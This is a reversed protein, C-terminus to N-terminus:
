CALGIVGAQRGARSGEQRHSWLRPDCRSCVSIREVTKVGCRRLQATAAAGPDVHPRHGSQDAFDEVPSWRALAAVVEDGVEYCGMCIAPGVVARLPATTPLASVTEGIVGAALGRWGAHIVAVVGQGAVVIPVCDATRIALLMGPVDTWLADAEGVLGGTTARLVDAGHVQSAFAVPQVRGSVTLSLREWVSSTAGRRLDLVNGIGDVRSTFGHVFKPDAGLGPARFVASADDAKGPVM